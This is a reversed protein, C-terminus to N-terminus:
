SLSTVILSTQPSTNIYALLTEVSAKSKDLGPEYLALKCSHESKSTEVFFEYLGQKHHRYRTDLTPHRARIADGVLILTVGPKQKFIKIMSTAARLQLNEPDSRDYVAVVIYQLGQLLDLRRLDEEIKSVWTGEQIPYKAKGTTLVGHTQSLVEAFTAGLGRTGGIVLASRRETM